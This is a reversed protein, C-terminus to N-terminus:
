FILRGRADFVLDCTYMRFLRDQYRNHHYSYMGVIVQKSDKQLTFKLPGDWGNIYTSTKCARKVMNEAQCCRLKFRRDGSGAKYESEVGAVFGNGPCKFNMTSDWNNIYGTWQCSSIKVSLKACYFKWVRDKKANDHVSEM